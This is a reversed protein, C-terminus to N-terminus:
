QSCYFLVMFTNEFIISYTILQNINTKEQTNYFIFIKANIRILVLDM